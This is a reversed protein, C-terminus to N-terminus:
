FPISPSAIWVSSSALPSAKCIFIEEVTIRCDNRIEFIVNRMNEIMDIYIGPNGQLVVRGDHGTEWAMLQIVCSPSPIVTPRFRNGFVNFTNSGILQESITVM